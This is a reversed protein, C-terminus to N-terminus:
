DNLKRIGDVLRLKEALVEKSYKGNRPTCNKYNNLLLLAQQKKIILFPEIENLLTLCKTALRIYWIYSQKHNERYRKKSCITGGLRTKLWELVERNTSSVCIYPSPLENKRRRSLTITGEGDIIGAVYALETKDM